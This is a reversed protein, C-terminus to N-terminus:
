ARASKEAFPRHQHARIMKNGINEFCVMPRATSPERELVDRIMACAVHAGHPDDVASAATGTSGAGLGPSGASSATGGGARGSNSSGNDCGAGIAAFAGLAVPVLLAGAYRNM